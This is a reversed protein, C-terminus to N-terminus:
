KDRQRTCGKLPLETLRPTVGSHQWDSVARFPAHALFAVTRVPPRIPHRAGANEICSETCQDILGM